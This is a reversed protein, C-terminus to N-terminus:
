TARNESKAQINNLRFFGERHIRQLKEVTTKDLQVRGVLKALTDKKQHAQMDSDFSTQKLLSKNNSTVKEKLIQLVIERHEQLMQAVGIRIQLFFDEIYRLSIPDGAIQSYTFYDWNQEQFFNEWLQSHPSDMNPCAYAQCISAGYFSCNQSDEVGTRYPHILCGIKKERDDLFGLFPCVYIEENHRPIKEEEKEQRDRYQLASLRSFPSTKPLTNSRLRLLKHIEEQSLKLNFVGCCAGCSFHNSPQCLSM